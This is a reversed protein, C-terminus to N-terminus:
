AVSEEQARPLVMRFTTGGASTSRLELDGAHDLLIKRSIALGLGFGEGVRRTTVYPEFLRPLIESAIGPGDDGHDIVVLDSEGRVTITVNGRRQGLALASNSTLNVLVRRLMERDAHVVAPAPSAVFHLSLDPWARAFKAVFEAVIENADNPSRQAIGVAAFSSLERTFRGLRELEEATSQYLPEVAAWSASADARVAAALRDLELSAATLPTRIEHAQRRVAEQWRSLHELSQIRRRDRGVMRSTQEIMAAIRGIADRRKEGTDIDVAGASLAALHSGLRSLRRDDRRATWILAGSIAAVIMAFLTVLAIQERREIEHRNMELVEFRASLRGLDNFRERYVTTNTPDLSRLRKQDDASQELAGRVEPHLAFDLWRRSVRRQIQTFAVTAILTVLLAAVLMRRFTM